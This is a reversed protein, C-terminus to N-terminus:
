KELIITITPSIELVSGDFQVFEKYNQYFYDFTQRFFSEKLYEPIFSVFPITTYSDEFKTTNSYYDQVDKMEIYKVKFQEEKAIRVFDEFKVAHFPMKYNNCYKLWKPDQMTHEICDFVALGKDVMCCILVQGGPKLASYVNKLALSLDDVWHFAWFSVIKDFKSDFRMSRVDCLKFDLNLVSKYNQQALNVMQFSQDIGLVTGRKAFTKLIHATIKGDGCGIDLVNDTELIEFKKLSEVWQPESNESYKQADWESSSSQSEHICFSLYFFALFMNNKNM